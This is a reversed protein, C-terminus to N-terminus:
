RSDPCVALAQARLQPGQLSSYRDRAYVVGVAMWLVAALAGQWALGQGFSTAPYLALLWGTYSAHMLVALLLSRTHVYVWTMLLRYATLAAMYLLAFELLWSAGQASSNQRFDVLGHWLAWALGLVVGTIFPSHRELLRPTALGTWGIEEFSGTVLGIALLPWQFRPAFAPDVAVLPWLVSLMLIPMTLMAVVYWRVGVRWRMLGSRLEGLGPRGGLLATCAIGAACPGLLMLVFILGTDIPRLQVLEFGTLALVVLTGGWSIGYALAFYGLLPWRRFWSKVMM